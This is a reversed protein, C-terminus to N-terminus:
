HHSGAGSPASVGPSAPAPSSFSSSPIAAGGSAPASSVSHSSAFSSSATSASHADSSRNAAAAVSASGTASSRIPAMLGLQMQHESVYTTASGRNEARESFKALNNFVGRPVGLGASGARFSFKGDPEQRSPQLSKLNVAILTAQGRVPPPPPTPRVPLHVPGRVPITPHNLIGRWTGHPNWGWGGAAPCYDWSGSHFPAWGWPYLSVWSYGQGPYWSWVGSSYPDFSASALYPRWMAGCGAVNSFSGYYNLDNLGYVYPSGTIGQAFSNARVKHYDAANKDWTDFLAPEGVATFQPQTSSATDFSIAKKKTVVMSGSPGSVAASGQFVVMKATSAHLDLRLHTSPSVAITQNGANVTFEGASKGAALSVYLSGHLLNVATITAGSVDRGLRPFEVLSEPALRLSSNDEFEVEALGQQTRLAEGALVPLNIFAADFSHGTKRDLHVQGTVQSLRVIRVQSVPVSQDPETPAQQIQPVDPPPATSGTAASPPPTQASAIAVVTALGCTFLAIAIKM